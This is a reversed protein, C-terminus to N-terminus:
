DLIVAGSWHRLYLQVNRKNINVKWIWHGWIVHHNKHETEDNEEGVEIKRIRNNLDEYTVKYHPVYIDIADNNIMEFNEQIHSTIQKRREEAERDAELRQTNLEEEEKTAESQKFKLLNEVNGQNQNNKPQRKWNGVHFNNVSLIDRRKKHIDNKDQSCNSKREKLNNRKNSRQNQSKQERPGDSKLNECRSSVVRKVYDHHGTSAAHIRKASKTMWNVIGASYPSSGSRCFRYLVNRQPKVGM